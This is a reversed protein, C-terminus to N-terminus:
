SSLAPAATAASRHMKPAVVAVAVVALGMLEAKALSIQTAATAEVALVVQALLLSLAQLPALAAGEPMLLALEQLRVLLAPAVMAMVQIQLGPLVLVVLVAAEAALRRLEQAAQTEKDQQVPGRLLTM